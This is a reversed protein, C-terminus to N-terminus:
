NLFQELNFRLRHAYRWNWLLVCLLEDVLYVHAILILFSVMKSYLGLLVCVLLVIVLGHGFELKIVDQLKYAEGELM